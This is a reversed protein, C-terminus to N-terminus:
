WSTYDTIDKKKGCECSIEIGMGIGNGPSFIYKLWGAYGTEDYVWCKHTNIWKKASKKEKKNLKFKM